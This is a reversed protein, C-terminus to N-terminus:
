RNLTKLGGTVKRERRLATILKIEEVSCDGTRGGGEKYQKIKEVRCDNKKATKHILTNSQYRESAIM